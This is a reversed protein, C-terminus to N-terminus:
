DLIVDRFKLYTLLKGM